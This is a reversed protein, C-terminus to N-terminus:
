LDQKIKALLGFQYLSAQLPRGFCFPSPTTLFSDSNLNRPLLLAYGCLM